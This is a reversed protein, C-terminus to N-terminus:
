ILFTKDYVYADITGEEAENQFRIAIKVSGIM